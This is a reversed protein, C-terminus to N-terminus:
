LAAALSGSSRPVPLGLALVFAWLQQRPMLAASPDAMRGPSQPLIFAFFLSTALLALALLALALGLQRGRLRMVGVDMLAMM